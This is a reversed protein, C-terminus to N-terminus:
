SAAPSRLDIRREVRLARLFDEDHSVVLLAGDYAALGAEIAAISDLDLHNTPEDLILLPPPASGGLVCALGTRLREGGSLTGVIRLAADARFLFRALAARCATEDDAPNLRRFNDRITAEPDLLAVDQDLMAHPLPRHIAGATPTLEGTALRLVTTKGSGNPGAIAIREPGTIQFSLDSLIPANSVPGGSVQDFALVVRHPALGTPNLKVGLTALREVQARAEDLATSAEDRQREALRNAGKHSNEAWDQMADLLMKPQGGKAHMRKGAADRKAKTERAAQIDREVQVMRREASDLAQAALAREEAKRAAYLDYNGGYVRAGLSSLEVIRDMGRLLDRDHSVVIAGGRWHGLADTVAGRGEADLNNTPEDLLIMPPRDFMLAALSARTRQGGSLTALRRDPPIGALGIRALAEDLRAELTWDADAADDATGTGEHLRALAALAPTVGFLDAITENPDVGVAQRLLRTDPDRTIEGGTPTLTGAILHLLTSKGVGNRGILGTREDGFTLDLRDFLLRHDPTSYSLARLVVPM